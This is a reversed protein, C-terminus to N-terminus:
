WVKEVWEITRRGMDRREEACEEPYQKESKSILRTMRNANELMFHCMYEYCIHQYPFSFSSKQLREALRKGSEASPWVNDANTSFLLVPGNIKEVPIVSEETVDKGTNMKLLNYEGTERFSALLNFSRIKYPTFPVETGEATWCSTGSTHKGALGESYFWSPTKLIVCTIEPNHIAALAAYEAGKSIGQIGVKEYGQEKLFRFARDIYEVPIRDLFKPTNKTRFYGAALAPVGNQQFFKAMKEAHELGGESGSIVILVKDFRDKAPYMVGDFGYKKYDIKYKM